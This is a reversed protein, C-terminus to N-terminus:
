VEFKIIEKGSIEKNINKYKFIAKGPVTVTLNVSNDHKTYSVEIRGKVTDIYGKAYNMGNVFVPSIVIEDFGCSLESQNIGLFGTFLYKTVAGFMPHNRSSRGNWNEWITTAGSRRMYDFSVDGTNSLLDFALQGEGQSFLYGILCETAIIGTDFSCNERYKEIVKNKVNENGLGANLAIGSAGNIDGCYARQQFSYYAVDIAKGTASIKEKLFDTKNKCGLILSIDTVKKMFDYYLCSNVFTEPIKIPTPPLWDGLCWGGEEEIYVLGNYSRSEIYDLYKLMKPFFEALLEKDGYIKYYTYPVIIIAGGWGCPGGGGGMLPATHQVHGSRKCQCDAIDYLWKRYFDKSDLMLMASECCLQGDGTYGLRERHPCDSPVGSHMNCLQTHIYTNYLWNLVDNDCEFGSTVKCDSHVVDIRVIEANGKVKIYRFGQWGFMEHYERETGDAIFDDRFLSKDFHMGNYEEGGIEEAYSVTFHEGKTNCMLVAYGVTNIGCDYYKEGNFEGLYKIDSISEIVKDSPAIQYYFDTKPPEIERSPYYDEPKPVSTYDQFEGYYLNCRKFFGKNCLTTKDSIIDEENKRIIFCLKPTGFDVNGEAQRLNQHYYGTGLIIELTNKGEVLYASIDYKVCYTRYGLDDFLPYGWDSMNRESYCSASPVLLDDSVKKGNLNLTFFGLGCVTIEAKDTKKSEFVKLFVPAIDGDPCDIWKANGFM